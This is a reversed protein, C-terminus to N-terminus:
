EPTFVPQGTAPHRLCLMPMGFCKAIGPPTLVQEPSGCALLRGKKMLAVQSAYQAALNIDHLVAVVAANQQKAFECAAQLARHQHVIDLAAIPEDLLLYRPHGEWPEWLQAWARALLVRVREGGSLTPFFRHELHLADMRKLALTAIHCDNSDPYGNCHPARGMLVMEGATFMFSAGSEQPLVARLRARELPRWHALPKGALIVEGADPQIDGAWTKLLTSKGAGNEGMLALFEGPKLDLSVEDLLRRSGRTVVLRHAALM